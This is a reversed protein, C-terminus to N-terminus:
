ASGLLSDFREGEDSTVELSQPAKLPVNAEETVLGQSASAGYGRRTRPRRYGYGARASGTTRRLRRAPWGTSSQPTGRVGEKARVAPARRAPNTGATLDRVVVSYAASRTM